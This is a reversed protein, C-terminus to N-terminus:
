RKGGKLGSEIIIKALFVSLAIPAVVIGLGVVGVGLTTLGLAKLGKAGFKALGGMLSDGFKEWKLAVSRNKEELAFKNVLEARRRAKYEIDKLATEDIIGREIDEQIRGVEAEGVEKFHEKFRGPLAAVADRTAPDKFGEGLSLERLLEASREHPIKQFLASVNQFVANDNAVLVRFADDHILDELVDSAHEESSLKQAGALISKMARMRKGEDAIKIASFYREQLADYLAGEKREKDLRDEAQKAEIALGTARREIIFEFLENKREAETHQDRYEKLEERSLYFDFFEPRRREEEREQALERARRKKLRGAKYDDFEGASLYTQLRAEFEEKRAVKIFAEQEEPQLAEFVERAKEMEEEGETRAEIRRRPERALEKARELAVASERKFEEERRRKKEELEQSTPAPKVEKKKFIPMEFKM